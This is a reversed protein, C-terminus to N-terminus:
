GAAAVLYRQLTPAVWAVLEEVDTSALPEVRLVYRLMGLGVLHSGVLTARLRADPVGLGHAIRGLLADTVFGRLLEAAHENSMASRVLGVVADRSAEDEWLSFFMRAVREGLGDPGGALVEPVFRDPRFPVRLSEAFLAEKTGFYHAVLAPDVGAERAVQRLSTGDYGRESFSARAAQLIAGRTDEGAPRRGTRPSV